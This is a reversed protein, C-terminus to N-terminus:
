VCGAMPLPEALRWHSPQPVAELRAHGGLSTHVGLCTATSLASRTGLVHASLVRASCVPSLSKVLVPKTGAVEECM